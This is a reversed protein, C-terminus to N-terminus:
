EHKMGMTFSLYKNEEAADFFTKLLRCGYGKLANLMHCAHLLNIEGRFVSLVDYLADLNDGMYDKIELASRIENFAEERSLMNRGDLTYM